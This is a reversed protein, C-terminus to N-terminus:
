IENIDEEEDCEFRWSNILKELLRSLAGKDIGTGKILRQLSSLDAQLYAKDELFVDHQKSKEGADRLYNNTM